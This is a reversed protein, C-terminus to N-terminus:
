VSRCITASSYLKAKWFFNNIDLIMQHRLNISSQDHVQSLDDNYLSPQTSDIFLALSSYIDIRKM